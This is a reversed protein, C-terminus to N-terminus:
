GCGSGLRAANQGTGGFALDDCRCLRQAEPTPDIGGGALHDVHMMRQVSDTEGAAHQEHRGAAAGAGARTHQEIEDEGATRRRCQNEALGLVNQRQTRKDRRFHEVLCQRDDAEIGFSEGAKGPSGMDADILIGDLGVADRKGDGRRRRCM